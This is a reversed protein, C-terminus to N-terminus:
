KPKIIKNVKVLIAGRAPLGKNEKMRKVYDLWRGKEYYRAKGLAQIGKWKKNWAVLAINNNKMINKVTTKMFNDTILITDKTLIKCYAVGIVYPKNGSITAFAIPNNEIIKKNKSNINM